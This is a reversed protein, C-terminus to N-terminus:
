MKTTETMDNSNEEQKEKPKEKFVNFVDYKLSLIERTFLVKAAYSVAILTVLSILMSLTRFPFLQRLDAEQYMPYVILPPLKILYEGGAMRFFLGVFYGTFSGYGNVFPVYLACILQPLLLVFVLDSCLAFLYYISKITLAMSTAAAGVLM